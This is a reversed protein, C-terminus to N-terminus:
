EEGQWSQFDLKFGNQQNDAPSRTVSANDWININVFSAYM